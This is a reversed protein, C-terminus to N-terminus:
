DYVDRRHGVAAVVIDGSEQYFIIRYDGV